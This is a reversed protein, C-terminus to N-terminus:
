PIVYYVIDSIKNKGDKTLQVAKVSKKKKNNYSRGVKGQAIGGLVFVDVHMFGDLTTNGSSSMSERLKLMFFRATKETVGYRLGIFSVSLSKSNTSM